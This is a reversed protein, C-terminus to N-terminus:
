LTSKITYMGDVNIHYYDLICVYLLTSYIGKRGTSHNEQFVIVIPLFLIFLVMYSWFHLFILQLCFRKKNGVILYKFTVIIYSPTWIILVIKCFNRSKKRVFFVNWNGKLNSANEIETINRRIFFDYTNLTLFYRNVIENEM